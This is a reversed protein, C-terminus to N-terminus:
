AGSQWEIEVLRRSHILRVITRCLIVFCLLSLVPGISVLLIRSWTLGPILVNNEPDSRSYRISAPGVDLGSLIKKMQSADSSTVPYVRYRNGTYSRGDVDFIYEVDIRYLTRRGGDTMESGIDLRVISGEAEPWWVSALGAIAEQHITMIFWLGMFFFMTSSILPYYLSQRYGSLAKERLNRDVIEEIRLLGNRAQEIRGVAQLRGLELRTSIDLENPNYNQRFRRQFLLLGTVVIGCLAAIVGMWQRAVQQDPRGGVAGIFCFAFVLTVLIAATDIWAHQLAKAVPIMSSQFHGCAPCPVADIDGELMESLSQEAQEAARREAGSQDLFLPSFGSGQADREILYTYQEGCEECTVTRYAFGSVEVNHDKGIPVRM